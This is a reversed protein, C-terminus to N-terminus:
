SFCYESELIERVVLDGKKPVPALPMNAVNLRDRCEAEYNAFVCNDDYMEVLSSRICHWFTWTDAPLTGFSDHIMFYDTIGNELGRLISLSMHASDLAHVFNAAIGAKAKRSDISNTDRQLNIRTHKSQKAARDYLFIRVRQPKSAAKNYRQVVPFGSPSTFRVPKGEKALAHSYSQLFTMGEAVSSLTAKICDYNIQALYRAHHAQSRYDGFPHKDLKGYNVLKQLPEMLDEIIQDAMGRPLSSYGYCMANRKVTKRTVGYDLWLKAEPTYDGKLHKCVTDAILQYVDECKDSPTLNVMKADGLHKSALAFHQTGSNTGDLSIFLHCVYDEGQEKMKKYEFCAALFQMPKDAKTWIDFTAKFDDAVSLIMPENRTVWDIRDNLSKKSIKEFDGVNALQIMLWGRSEETLKKGNGALFCAKIHDARHYNWHSCAYMRGRYDYSFGIWFKPFDMLYNATKIDEQLVSVNSICERKTVFWAKRDKRIQAYMDETPTLVDASIEPYAPPDLDPFQEYTLKEDRIWKIVEVVDKNVALPTAQLANLATVFQPEGKTFEHEIQRRQEGTARRVLPTLAALVENEYVGTSFSTWPKPPTVLPGFLPEVWSADFAYERVLGEAEPTLSLHRKTKLAETSTEVVFIDSAELIASVIPAALNIRKAKSWRERTFGEKRAINRGAKVRHPVSNHDRSVQSVLRKFLVKDFLKLDLAWREHEVRTGITALTSTLTQSYIVSDYCINLGLYALIDTDQDKLEEYWESKRGQGSQFRAEEDAIAKAIAKSVVPLAESILDHPAEQQSAQLKSQRQQFREHGRQIMTKEADEQAQSINDKM